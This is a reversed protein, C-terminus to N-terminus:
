QGNYSPLLSLCPRRRVITWRTQLEGEGFYLVFVCVRSAFKFLFFFSVIVKKIRFEFFGQGVHVVGKRQQMHEDDKEAKVEVRRSPKAHRAM